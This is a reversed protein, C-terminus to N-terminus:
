PANQYLRLESMPFHRANYTVLVLDHRVATAGIIADPKDLTIGRERFHRIYEGALDAIATDLPFSLLSNLLRLTNPREHERMGEIIETRSITAIGVQGQLALAAMLDTSPQHRRLHRILVCSDLLYDPM